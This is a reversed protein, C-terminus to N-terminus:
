VWCSFIFNIWIILKEENSKKTGFDVSSTKYTDLFCYLMNKEYWVELWQNVLVPGEQHSIHVSRTRIHLVICVLRYNHRASVFISCYIIALLYGAFLALTAWSIKKLFRLFYKCYLLTYAVFSQLYFKLSRTINWNWWSIWM